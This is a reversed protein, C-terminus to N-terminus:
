FSAPPPRQYLYPERGAAIAPREIVAFRYGSEAQVPTHTLPLSAPKSSGFALPAAACRDKCLPGAQWAMGQVHQKRKCCGHKTKRCCAMGGTGGPELAAALLPAGAPALFGLSLLASLIRRFV